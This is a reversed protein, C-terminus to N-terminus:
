DDIVVVRMKLNKPVAVESLIKRVAENCTKAFKVKVVATDDDFSLIFAVDTKAHRIASQGDKDGKELVAGASVYAMDPLSFGGIEDSWPRAGIRACSPPTSLLDACYRNLRPGIAKELNRLSDKSEISMLTAVDVQIVHDPRKSGSASVRPLTLWRYEVGGVKISVGSWDGGPPNCMSEFCRANLVHAFLVHLVSDVDQEGVCGKKPFHRRNVPMTVLSHRQQSNEASAWGRQFVPEDGKMSDCIVFNSLALVSEWLGNEDGLVKPSSSLKEVMQRSAPGYVVSLVQIEDGILMRLLPLLGRDPRADDGHPKFGNICCIALGGGDFAAEEIKSFFTPYTRRILSKLEDMREKRIVCFPLDGSAVATALREIGKLFKRFSPRTPISVKKKWPLDFALYLERADGDRELADHVRNWQATTLAAVRMKKGDAATQVFSYAKRKLVNLTEDPDEGRIRAAVYRPLDDGAIMRAYKARNEDDAGPNMSYAIMVDSEASESYSLFSFPVAPNPLRPVKRNRMSDLEFGGIETVFLYPIGCRATSYARGSRQWAQNGAPLASCFEVALIPMETEGEIRTVYVDPTERLVGGAARISEVLNQEWRDFGPFFSFEYVGEKTALRFSPAVATGCIVCDTASLAREVLALMRECEVINDGYIAFQRTM